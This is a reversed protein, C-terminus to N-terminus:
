FSVCSDIQHYSYASIGREVASSHRELPKEVVSLGLEGAILPAVISPVRMSLFWNTPTMPELVLQSNLGKRPVASSQLEHCSNANNADCHPMLQERVKKM